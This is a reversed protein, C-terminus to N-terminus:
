DVSADVDGQPPQKQGAPPMLRGRLKGIAKEWTEEDSGPHSPDLSDLALSGAWDETNHCKVCYTTVLHTVPQDPAPNAPQQGYAVGAASLALWAFPGGTVARIVTNRFLIGRKRM